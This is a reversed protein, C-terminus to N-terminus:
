HVWKWYQIDSFSPWHSKVTHGSGYDPAGNDCLCHWWSCWPLDLKVQLIFTIRLNQINRQLVTARWRLASPFPIILDTYLFPVAPPHSHSLSHAMSVPWMLVSSSVAPCQQVREWAATVQLTHCNYLVAMLLQTPFTSMICPRWSTYIPLAGNFKASSRARHMTM